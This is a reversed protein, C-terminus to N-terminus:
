SAARGEIWRRWALPPLFALHLSGAGVLGLTNALFAGVPWEQVSAHGLHPALGWLALMAGVTLTAVGWLQIQATVVPDGLGVRAQRRMMGAYRLSEFGAWMFVATRVWMFVHNEPLLAWGPVVDGRLIQVALAALLGLSVTTTTAAAWFRGPRFVRWTLLCIAAGAVGNVLNSGILSAFVAWEPWTSAFLFFPCLFVGGLAIALCATGLALEPLKRTRRALLLLRSGVMTGVVVAALFSILSFIEM